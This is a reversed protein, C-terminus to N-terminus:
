EAEKSRAFRKYERKHDKNDDVSVRKRGDDNCTYAYTKSQVEITGNSSEANHITACSVHAAVGPVIEQGAIVRRYSLDRRALMQYPDSACATMYVHEMYGYAAAHYPGRQSNLHGMLGEFTPSRDTGHNCVDRKPIRGIDNHTRWHSGGKGCPCYFQLWKVKMPKVSPQLHNAAFMPVCLHLSDIFKSKVSENSYFDIDYAMAAQCPTLSEGGNMDVVQDEPDSDEDVEVKDRTKKQDIVLEQRMLELEDEYKVSAKHLSDLVIESLCTDKTRLRLCGVRLKNTMRTQYGSMTSSYDRYARALPTHLKSFHDICMGQFWKDFPNSLEGYREHQLYHKKEM